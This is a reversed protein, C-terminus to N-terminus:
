KTIVILSILVNEIINYRYLKLLYISIKAYYHCKKKYCQSIKVYINTM